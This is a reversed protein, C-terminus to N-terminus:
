WPDNIRTWGSGTNNLVYVGGSGAAYLNSGHVYLAGSWNSYLGSDIQAWYSGNNTTKYNYNDTGASVNGGLVALSYVNGNLNNSASLWDNGDDTSLFVGGGFSGAFLNNENEALCFIQYGVAGNTQVWQSYLPIASTFICLVVLLFAYINKMKKEKRLIITSLLLQLRNPGSGGEMEDRVSSIGNIKTAAM